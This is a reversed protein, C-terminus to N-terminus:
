RIERETERELQGRAYGYDRRRDCRGHVRDDCSHLQRGGDNIRRDITRPHLFPSEMTNLLIIYIITTGNILLQSLSLFNLTSFDGYIGKKYKQPM